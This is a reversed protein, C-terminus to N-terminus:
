ISVVKEAEIEGANTIVSFKAIISNKNVEFEFNNVEVIRTDQLLAEKIVRELEPIVFTTDEGILHKLEIGYNWSYILHEFRETNLICYVVQKMAEIGNCFNTTIINKEIDLYYTKSTQEEDTELNNLLINDTDPTM